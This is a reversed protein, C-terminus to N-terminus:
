VELGEISQVGADVGGLPGEQVPHGLVVVQAGQAAHERACELPSAQRIKDAREQLEYANMMTPDAQPMLSEAPPHLANHSSQFHYDPVSSGVSFHSDLEFPPFALQIDASKFHDEALRASSATRKASVQNPLRQQTAPSVLYSMDVAPELQEVFERENEIDLLIQYTVRVPNAKFKGTTRIAKLVLTRGFSQMLDLEMMQDVVKTNVDRKSMLVFEQHTSPSIALYPPLAEKFWPHDRIGQLSIREMPKVELMKTILDKAPVSLFSPFPKFQGNKIKKFLQYISEDDFPLFGCLLAYLIVGASWCDVEPGAYLAGNIVEPAAYNPSGCSTKLLEGDRMLNSLGFDAIKVLENTKSILLNEPKLDRHAVRHHHCYALGSIIQQFLRRAENETCKGRSVILDFLEGGGVLEMILFIDTPTEVVEYLRIIHPHKLMHLIQIERKVKEKM